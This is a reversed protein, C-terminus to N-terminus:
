SSPKIMVSWGSICECGGDTCCGHICCSASSSEMTTHGAGGRACHAGRTARNHSLQVKARFVTAAMDACEQTCAPAEARVSRLQMRLDDHVHEELTLRVAVDDFRTRSKRAYVPLSGEPARINFSPM